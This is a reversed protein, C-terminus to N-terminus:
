SSGIHTPKLNISAKETSPILEAKQKVKEMEDLKEASIAVTKTVKMEAHNERLTSKSMSPVKLMTTIIFVNRPLSVAM